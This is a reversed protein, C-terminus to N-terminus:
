MLLKVAAIGTIYAAALGTLVAAMTYRTRRAKTAGFYVSVTYFATECSALLVAATRGTQSDVGADRIIQSGLALSGAGTFPKTLMLPVLEPAVGVKQLIPALAWGMLELAGSARLMSVAALLGCLTPILKVATSLGEGAGRLFSQFVSQGRLIGWLVAGGFLVPLIYASM